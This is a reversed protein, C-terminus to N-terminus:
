QRQRSRFVVGAVPIRSFRAVGALVHTNRAPGRRMHRQLWLVYREGDEAFLDEGHYASLVACFADIFGESEGQGRGTLQDLAYEGGRGDEFHDYSEEPPEPQKLSLALALRLITWKPGEALLGKRKVLEITDEDQRSTYVKAM